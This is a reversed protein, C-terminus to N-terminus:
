ADAGKFKRKTAMGGRLHREAINEEMVEKVNSYLTHNYMPLRETLDKHCTSKSIGYKKAAQRVTSRTEVIYLAVEQAREEINSRM